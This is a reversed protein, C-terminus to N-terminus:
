CQLQLYPLALVATLFGISMFLYPCLHGYVNAECQSKADFVILGEATTFVNGEV